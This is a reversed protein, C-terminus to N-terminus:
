DARPDDEVDLPNLVQSFVQECRREISMDVAHFQTDVKCGGVAIADDAILHLDLPQKNEGLASIREEIFALQTPSVRVEARNEKIPLQNLARTVADLLIADDIKTERMIVHNALTVALLSLERKLEDSVMEIPAQLTDLLSSLASIQQKIEETSQEFADKKGEETGASLGEQHGMEYGEKHGSAVGEEKGSEFGDNYASQRIDEIQEATLPKLEDQETEPPEYKWKYAPRNLANTKGEEERKGSDVHPLEWPTADEFLNDQKSM